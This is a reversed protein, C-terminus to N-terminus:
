RGNVHEKLEALVRLAEVPTINNVDIEKVLDRIVDDVVEFMTIQTRSENQSVPKTNKATNTDNVANTNEGASVDRKADAHSVAHKGGELQQLVLEATQLVENPLGAMRAVHIGFSHDSHGPVVKHTFLIDSGVEQVDVKYNKVREFQNALATLEHYHTAFLTKAGIRQHLYEAIAWAISIGDFTATGRGVEDLLILSKATANNLINASELMEVLFTSEGATINDQAGVRTFIRDTLPILAEKAPVFCGVHALFVILGVQRLYSSKGSMNPGTIIFIQRGTTDMEVDNAVYPTGPPLLHEIVPHRAQVLKLQHGDHVQPEVYNHAIAVSAFSALCDIEAIAKCSIQIQQGQESIESMLLELLESERESTKEEASLLTREIEKLRPTTYREANTLTQKREYADPVKTTHVHTVEIYYGFVNNFSVKLTSIGTVDREAKQYEAVWEKGHLLADQYEDLKADHGKRFITGNGIQISPEDLLASDLKQTLVSHDVIRPSLTSIEQHASQSLLDGVVPFNQLSQKLSNLDRPNARRTFVKAVLREVDGINKLVDTLANLRTPDRHFGRVVSHRKAIREMSVLPTQLWWRLLRGGMPTQTRDLIGALAGDREGSNNTSHIELNKRTQADLVMIDATRLETVSTIQTLASKQTDSIYQLLAGASITGHTRTDLGFGKLSATKFQRLLLNQAFEHEFLWSELRTISPPQDLEDIIPQWIEREQKNVVVEAPCLSELLPILKSLHVDGATFTGTSVDAVAVGCLNEKNKTFSIAAVYTHSKAELLRDYMVVGPTVVEVVDRRVIGKAQKPDELQECVAVRHGGRVLKPLYADLQHHPFGALPIEGASGNNRKTLTIGCAKATLVADEGFTEYFDGLRFLLVTDPYREKIQRYQRMLPTETKTKM